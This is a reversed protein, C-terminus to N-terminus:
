AARGGILYQRLAPALQPEPEAVVLPLRVGLWERWAPEPLRAGRPGALDVALALRM